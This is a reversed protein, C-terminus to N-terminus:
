GAAQRQIQPLPFVPFFSRHHFLAIADFIGEVLWIERANTLQGTPPAWWQGQYSMGPRFRAKQHAFRKNVLREWYGNGVAFRVTASGINRAADFYYEQSYWGSVKKLDFGREHSMYADATANPSNEPVDPYVHCPNEFLDPYLDRVHVSYNCKNLRGCKLVWPSDAYAYLEKKGCAPCVGERLWQGQRKFHFEALRSILESYLSPNM